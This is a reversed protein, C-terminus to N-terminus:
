DQSEGVCMISLLNSARTDKVKVNVDNDNEGMTRRESHSIIVYKCDTDDLLFAFPLM